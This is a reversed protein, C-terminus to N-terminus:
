RRDRYRVRVLGGMVGRAADERSGGAGSPASADVHGGGGRCAARAIVAGVLYPNVEPAIVLGQSLGIKLAAISLPLREPQSLLRPPWRATRTPREKAWIRVHADDDPVAPAPRVDWREDLTLSVQQGVRGRKTV